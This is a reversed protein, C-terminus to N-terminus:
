GKKNMFIYEWNHGSVRKSEDPLKMYKGYTDKLYKDYEDIIYAEINEFKIKHTNEFFDRNYFINKSLSTEAYVNCYIDSESNNYKQSQKNIKEVIKNLKIPKLIFSIIKKLLLRAKNTSIQTEYLKILYIKKLIKIKKLFIGRKISSEPIKDVPFVDIFVGYNEIKKIGKEKAITNTNVIKAYPYPFDNNTTCTLFKLNSNNYQKNFIKEIKNYDDRMMMVDIDDDWPIFGKHRIAGLATGGMLSYKINNNRCISDFAELINIEIKKIQELELNKKTM